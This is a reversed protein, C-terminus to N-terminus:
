AITKGQIRINKPDAYLRKTMNEAKNVAADIMKATIAATANTRCAEELTLLYGVLYRFDGEIYRGLLDAAEHGIALGTWEKAIMIIEPTSVPQFEVIASPLIRSFFQGHKQLKGHLAEMGILIIPVRTMDHVDRIINLMRAGSNFLYDAEDIFLPKGWRKFGKIVQECLRDLRYIPDGIKAMAGMEELLRRPNWTELMRIYFTDSMGYFAEVVETKGYGWKGYILGLGPLSPDRNVLAEVAATVKNYNNTRVFTKNM